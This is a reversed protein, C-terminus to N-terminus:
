KTYFITNAVPLRKFLNNISKEIENMNEENHNSIRNFKIDYPKISVTFENNYEESDEIYNLILKIELSDIKNIYGSEVNSVYDEYNKCEINDSFLGKINIEYNINYENNDKSIMKKYNIYIQEVYKIIEGVSNTTPLVNSYDFEHLINEEEDNEVETISFLLDLNINSNNSNILSNYDSYEIDNEILSDLRILHNSVIFLYSNLAINNKEIVVQYIKSKLNHSSLTYKNVFNFGNKIFSEINAEVNNDFSSLKCKGMDFMIMKTKNDKSSLAFLESSKYEIDKFEINVPISFDFKLSDREFRVQLIKNDPVFSTLWTLASTQEHVVIDNIGKIVRNNNSMNKSIEEFRLLLDFYLLIEDKSRVKSNNILENYDTNFLVKNIKKVNCEKDVNPLDLFGLVWLYVGVDELQWSIDELERINYDNKIISLITSKEELTLIDKINFKEDLKIYAANILDSANDLAYTASMSLVYCTLMKNVIEEKSKINTNEETPITIKCDFFPINRNKLLEINRNVRKTDSPSLHVNGNSVSESIISIERKLM